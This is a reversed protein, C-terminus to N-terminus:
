MGMVVTNLLVCALMANDFLKHKVVMKLFVRAKKLYGMWGKPWVRVENIKEVVWQSLENNLGIELVDQGSWRPTKRKVACDKKLVENFNIANGELDGPVDLESKIIAPVYEFKPRKVNRKPALIKYAEEEFHKLAQNKFTEDRGM